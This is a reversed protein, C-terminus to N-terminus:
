SASSHGNVFHSTFSYVDYLREGCVTCKWPDDKEHLGMHMFYIANDFFQIQCFNCMWGRSTGVNAHRMNAASSTVTASNISDTSWTSRLRSSPTKIVNMSQNEYTIQVRGQISTNQNPQTMASPNNATIKLHPHMASGFTNLQHMSAQSLNGQQPHSANTKNLDFNYTMTDAETSSINTALHHSQTLTQNISRAHTESSKSQLAASTSQSASSITGVPEVNSNKIDDDNKTSDSIAITEDTNKDSVEMNNQRNREDNSVTIFDDHPSETKIILNDSDGSRSM